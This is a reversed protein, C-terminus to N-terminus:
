RDAGNTRKGLLKFETALPVKKDNSEEIPAYKGHLTMRLNLAAIKAKWVESYLEPKEYLDKAEKDLEFFVVRDFKTKVPEESVKVALFQVRKDDTIVDNMVVAVEKASEVLSAISYGNDIYDHPAKLIAGITDRKPCGKLRAEIQRASLKEENALRLIEKVPYKKKVNAM